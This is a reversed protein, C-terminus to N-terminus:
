KEIQAIFHAGGRMYEVQVPSGLKKLEALPEMDPDGVVTREMFSRIL